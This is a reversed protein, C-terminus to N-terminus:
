AKGYGDKFGQMDIEFEAMDEDIEKVTELIFGEHNKIDNQAIKHGDKYLTVVKGNEITGKWHTDNKHFNFKRKDESDDSEFYCNRGAQKKRQHGFCDNRRYKGNETM